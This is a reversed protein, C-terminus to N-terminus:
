NQAINRALYKATIKDSMTGTGVYKVRFYVDGVDTIQFRFNQSTVDSPTFTYSAAKSDFYSYYNTGDLSAELSITGGTTGSIETLSVQISVVKQFGKIAGTYMYKTGTNTVTDVTNGYVSTLSTQANTITFAFMLSLFFIIKKM